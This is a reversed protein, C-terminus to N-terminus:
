LEGEETLFEERIRDPMGMYFSFKFSKVFLRIMFISIVIYLLLTGVDTVYDITTPNDFPMKLDSKELEIIGFRKLVKKLSMYLITLSVISMSILNTLENAKTVSKTKKNKIFDYYNKLTKGGKIKVSYDINRKTGTHIIQIIAGHKPEIYDFLIKISNNNIKKIRFKNTDESSFVLTSDLIQNGDNMSISFEKGNAIDNSNIVRNGSNWIAIRSICLGSIEKNDYKISLKNITSKNYEILINSKNAYTLEKREKNVRQCYIAYIFSAVALVALILWAIPNNMLKELM